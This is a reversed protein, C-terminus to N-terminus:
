GVRRSGFRRPPLKKKVLAASNPDLQKGIVREIDRVLPRDDEAIFSVAMGSKGARGTRGIRHVYDEPTGPLDYNVVHSVEPIDLGRAAVDTAVLVRLEGSKFKRLTKERKIQTIDGHIPEASVGGERLRDFVWDARVRTKTFVVVSSMGLEELLKVLLADKDFEHVHYIVQEIEKPEISDGNVNIVQPNKLYQGAIYKVRDDITASFMLTQRDEPVKAIVRRVQPMFGMDLLRDAEDLVLIEIGSLDINKREVHDLLRGPTCVLIDVGRKLAKIQTDFGTGGYVALVRLGLDGTMLDFQETVQNALERTPAIVLARPRVDPEQLCEIIPLAYAATKGSGTQASALIDRGAIVLPIAELQVPTPTKYGLKELAVIVPRSLGLESFTTM